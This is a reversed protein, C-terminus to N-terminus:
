QRIIEIKEIGTEIRYHENFFVGQKAGVEWVSDPFILNDQVTFRYSRSFREYYKRDPYFLYLLHPLYSQRDILILGTPVSDSSAGTNFGIALDGEGPDNPYFELEYKNKFIDPITLVLDKFRNEDGKITRVSDLQGWSYFRMQKLSDEKEVRGKSDIYKYV